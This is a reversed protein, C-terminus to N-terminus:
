LQQAIHVCVDEPASIWAEDSSDDYITVFGEGDVEFRLGWAPWASLHPFHM